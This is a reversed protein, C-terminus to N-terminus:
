KLLEILLNKKEINLIEPKILIFLVNFECKISKYIFSTIEEESTSNNCYLVTQALPFNGTLNLSCYIANKEINESLCSHSYIGKKNNELVIAKKYIKKLDVFNIKLLKNLYINVDEFMNKLQSEEDNIEIETVENKNNDNTVYKLINNLINFFEIRNDFNHTIVKYLINFQRGYVMRSIPNSLYITKVENNQLEKIQNM